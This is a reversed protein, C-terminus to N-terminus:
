KQNKQYKGKIRKIVNQNIGANDKIVQSLKWAQDFYNDFISVVRKDRITCFNPSYASSVFVVEEDDIIVFQLKPFKPHKSKDYYSCSYNDGHTIHALMKNINRRNSFTFIEQYVGSHNKSCFATISKDLVEDAVQREVASRPTPNNEFFDQWNLDSVSRSANLIREAIYLDAQEINDFFKIEIGNLSGIITKTSHDIRTLIDHRRELLDRELYTSAVFHIAIALLLFFTLLAFHDEKFKFLDLCAYVACILSVGILIGDDFLRVVKDNKM